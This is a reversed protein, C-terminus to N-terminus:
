QYRTDLSRTLSSSATGLPETGLCAGSRLMRSACSPGLPSGQVLEWLGLPGQFSLTCSVKPFPESTGAARPKPGEKGPDLWRLPGRPQVLYAATAVFDGGDVVLFSNDPLIEEVTQLVRVPNLHQAVPRAAKERYTQEKQRDAEQLEEVWDAAWTQGRLGEALKLVFSGVDGQVAEQPKWFIDSNLLMEERNRNVVIIKSRRSLVRGYSLRFDCVAGALIVVDAKKLAAGRNQRIHLPHKRGLLGRAMGGLFCPVGLTEVAARLKGPPTPPLLAQSGLLLLPRKARSLIEM